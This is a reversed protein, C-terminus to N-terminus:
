QVVRSELYAEVAKQRKQQYARLLLRESEWLREGFNDASRLSALSIPEFAFQEALILQNLIALQDMENRSLTQVLPALNKRATEAEAVEVALEFLSDSAGKPGSKGIWLQRQQMIGTLFIKLRTWDASEGTPDNAIRVALDDNALTLIKLRLERQWNASESIEFDHRMLLRATTLVLDISAETTEISDALALAMTPWHSYSSLLQQLELQQKGPIDSLFFDVFTKCEAYSLDQFRLASRSLQRLALLQFEVSADNETIKKLANDKHRVDSATAQLSVITGSSSKSDNNRAYKLNIQERLSQTANELQQDIAQLQEAGVSGRNIARILGLELNIAMSLNAIQEPLQRDNLVTANLRNNTNATIRNVRNLLPQFERYQNIAVYNELTAKATPRNSGQKIETAAILKQALSEFYDQQKQKLLVAAWRLTHDNDIPKLSNIQSECLQVFRPSWTAFDEALSLISNRKWRDLEEKELRTESTRILEPLLTSAHEPKAFAFATFRNWQENVIATETGSRLGDLANLDANPKAAGSRLADRYWNPLAILRSTAEQDADLKLSAAIIPWTAANVRLVRDLPLPRDSSVDLDDLAKGLEVKVVRKADFPLTAFVTSLWQLTATKHNPDNCWQPSALTTSLAQGATELSAFPELSTPSANTDESTNDNKNRDTPEALLFQDAFATRLFRELTKRVSPHLESLEALRQKVPSVGASDSNPEKSNEDADPQTQTPPSNPNGVQEIPQPWTFYGILAIGLLGLLVITLPTVKSSQGVKRNRNEAVTPITIQDVALRDLGWNKGVRYLQAQLESDIYVHDALQSVIAQRAFEQAEDHSVRSIGMADCQEEILREAISSEIQYKDRAIDIAAKEMRPSMVDGGLKEIESKLFNLFAAEYRTLQEVDLQSGRLQAMAREFTAQPLKIQEALAQLKLQCAASMGKEGAIIGASQRLFSKLRSDSQALDDTEDNSTSDNM